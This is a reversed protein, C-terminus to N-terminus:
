DDSGTDIIVTGDSPCVPAGSLGCRMPEQEMARAVRDETEAPDLPLRFRSRRETCDAEGAACTQADRLLDIQGPAPADQMPVIPLLLLLSLM